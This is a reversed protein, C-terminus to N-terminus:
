RDVVISIESVSVAFGVNIGELLLSCQQAEAFVTICQHGEEDGKTIVVALIDITLRVTGVCRIGFQENYTLNLPPRYSNTSWGIHVGDFSNLSMVVDYLDCAEAYM